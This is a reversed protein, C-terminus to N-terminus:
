PASEGGVSRFAAYQEKTLAIENRPAGDIGVRYLQRIASDYSARMLPTLWEPFSSAVDEFAPANVQVVLRYKRSISKYGEAVLQRGLAMDDETPCVVQCDSAKAIPAAPVVSAVSAAPRASLKYEYCKTGPRVERVVKGVEWLHTMMFSVDRRYRQLCEAIESVTRAGFSNELFSLIEADLRRQTFAAAIAKLAAIQDATLQISTM